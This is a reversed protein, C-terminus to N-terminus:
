HRISLHGGIANAFSCVDQLFEKKESDTKGIQQRKYDWQKDERIKNDILEQLDAEVIDKLLKNQLGM